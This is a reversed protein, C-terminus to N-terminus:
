IKFFSFFGSVGVAFNFNWLSLPSTSGYSCYSMWTDTLNVSRQCPDEAEERVGTFEGHPSVQICTKKVVVRIIGMSVSHCELQDVM